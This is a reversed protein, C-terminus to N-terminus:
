LENLLQDASKLTTKGEKASKVEDISSKLEKLFLAKSSIITKIKLNSIRKLDDMVSAAKSDPIDLIVKM